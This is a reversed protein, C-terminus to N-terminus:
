FWEPLGKAKLMSRAVVVVIGNQRKAIGYQQMSYPVTHQRHVGEVACYKTLETMTFEGGRYTRLVRLKLSSEGEAWAQIDKIAAAAHDKSPIMAVWMYRSLGDM